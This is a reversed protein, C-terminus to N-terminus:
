ALRDKKLSELTSASLIETNKVRYSFTFYYEGCKEETTLYFHAFNTRIVETNGEWTSRHGAESLVLPKVPVKGVIVNRNLFAVFFNEGDLIDGTVANFVAKEGVPIKLTITKEFHFRLTIPDKLMMAVLDDDRRTEGDLGSFCFLQGYAYHNHFKM